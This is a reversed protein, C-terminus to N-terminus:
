TEIADEDRRSTRFLLVLLALFALTILVVIPMSGARREETASEWTHEDAADYTREIATVVRDAELTVYPSTVPVASERVATAILDPEPAPAPQAPADRSEIDTAATVDVSTEPEPAASLAPALRQNCRQRPAHDGDCYREHEYAM